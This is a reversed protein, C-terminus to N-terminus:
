FMHWLEDSEILKCIETKIGSESNLHKHRFTFAHIDIVIIDNHKLLYYLM